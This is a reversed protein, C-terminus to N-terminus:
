FTFELDRTSDGAGIRFVKAAGSSKICLVDFLVQSNYDFEDRTGGSPIESASIGGYGQRVIYNVGNTTASNNFHSDGAFSCVLKCSAPVSTFDWSVQTSSNSGATKSVFASLISRLTDFGAGSADGPYSAWRGCNDVCLHSLIVVNWGNQVNALTSALWSLQTSGISYGGVNESTNLYIVKVKSFDLDIYGYCKGTEHMNPYHKAFPQNFVTSLQGDSLHLARGYDHNGKVFVWPTSQKMKMKTNKVLEYGNESTEEATDLGIDGFNGVLDFGFLTQMDNLYGVAKYKDSGSSHVDTIQAIMCIQSDGAWSLIRKHADEAASMAFAPVGGGGAELATIRADNSAVQINLNSNAKVRTGDSYVVDVPGKPFIHKGFTTAIIIGSRQSDGYTVTNSSPHYLIANTGGGTITCAGYVNQLRKYHAGAGYYVDVIGVVDVVGTSLDVNFYGNTSSVLWADMEIFNDLNELEAQVDKLIKLERGDSYKVPVNGKPFIDQGKTVAVVVGDEQNEGYFLTRTSPMYLVASTGAGTIQFANEMNQFRRYQGGIGYYVDIIGVVSVWGTEVDVYFYSNGGAILLGDMEKMKEVTGGIGSSGMYIVKYVNDTEIMNLFLHTAEPFHEKVKATSFVAYNESYTTIYNWGNIVNNLSIWDDSVSGPAAGRSIVGMVTSFAASTANIDGYRIAYFGDDLPIAVYRAGEFNIEEVIGNTRRAYKEMVQIDPTYYAAQGPSNLSYSQIMGDLYKIQQTTASQSMVDTTSDGINQTVTSSVGVSSIINDVINIGPGAVLARQRSNLELTVANQSMVNTISSGISQVVQTPELEGYNKSTDIWIKVNPEPTTGSVVDVRKVEDVYKKDVADINDRAQGKQEITLDQEENVALFPIEASSGNSRLSGYTIAKNNPYTAM